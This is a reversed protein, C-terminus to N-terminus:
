EANREEGTVQIQFGTSKESEVQDDVEPAEEQQQETMYNHLEYLHREIYTDDGCEPESRPEPECMNTINLGLQFNKLMYLWHYEYWSPNQFQKLMDCYYITHTSKYSDEILPIQTSSCNDGTLYTDGSVGVIIQNDVRTVGGITKSYTLERTPVPVYDFTSVESCKDLCYELLTNTIKELDYEPMYNEDDVLCGEFVYCYEDKLIRRVTEKTIKTSCTANCGSIARAIAKEGPSVLKDEETGIFVRNNEDVMIIGSIEVDDDNFSINNFGNFNAMNYCAFEKWSDNDNFEPDIEFGQVFLMADYYAKLQTETVYQPLDCYRGETEYWKAPTTYFSAEQDSVYLSWHPLWYTEKEPVFSTIAKIYGIKEEFSFSTYNNPALYQGESNFSNVVFKAPKNDVIAIGYALNNEFTQENKLTTMIIDREEYYPHFVDSVDPIYYDYSTYCLPLQGQLYYTRLLDPNLTNVDITNNAYSNDSTVCCPYKLVYPYIDDTDNYNVSSEFKYWDTGNNTEIKYCDNPDYFGAMTEIVLYHETAPYHAYKFAYVPNYMFPFRGQPFYKAEQVKTLNNDDPLQSNDGERGQVDPSPHYIVWDEFPMYVDANIDASTYYSIINGGIYAEHLLEEEPTGNELTYRVRESTNSNFNFYVPLPALIGQEVPNGETRINKRYNYGEQRDEPLPYPDYPTLIKAYKFGAIQLFDFVLHNDYGYPLYPEPLKPYMLENMEELRQSMKRKAIWRMLFFDINEDLGDDIEKKTDTDEEGVKDGTNDAEEFLKNDMSLELDSLDYGACQMYIYKDLVSKWITALETFCYQVKPNLEEDYFVKDKHYQFERYEDTLMHKVMRDFIGEPWGNMLVGYFFEEFTDFDRNVRPIKSYGIACDTLYELAFEEFSPIDDLECMCLEPDEEKNQNPCLLQPIYSLSMTLRNCCPVDIIAAYVVDTNNPLTRDPKGTHAIVINYQDKSLLYYDWDSLEGEEPPVTSFLYDNQTISGSNIKQVFVNVAENFDEMSAFMTEFAVLRSVIPQLLDKSKFAEEGSPRIGELRKEIIYTGMPLGHISNSYTFVGNDGITTGGFDYSDGTEIHTAKILLQFKCTAQLENCLSNCHLSIKDSDISYSVALTNVLKPLFIRKTSVFGTETKINGGGETKNLLISTPQNDIDELMTELPEIDLLCSAITNGNTSQYMVSAVNNPDVTITKFVKGEKPAHEGFLLDLEYQTALAYFYRSTRGSGDEQNGIMHTKGVGSQEKVRGTPDNYFITRTFPFGEADPISIDSNHESYYSFGETSQNVQEPTQSNNDFHRTHYEEDDTTKMFSEKFSGDFTKGVPIPMTVIVPRGSYDLITQSILTTDKNSSFYSQSQRVNLLEDAFIISEKYKNDESFVRSYIWNIDENPDQFYFFPLSIDLVELTNKEDVVSWDGFNRIDTVGGEYFNSIPRVRCVYFGSGESISLEIFTDPSYTIVTLAKSWDYEINNIESESSEEYGNFLRLLQFEYSSIYPISQNAQWYFRKKISEPIDTIESISFIPYISPHIAYQVSLNYSLTIVDSALLSSINFISVSEIDVYNRNVYDSLDYLINAERTNQNFLLTVPEPSLSIVNGSKTTISIEYTVGHEDQTISNQLAISLLLKANYFAYEQNVESNQPPSLLIEIQEISNQLDVSEHLTYEALKQSFGFVSLLCFINTFLIVKTTFRKMSNKKYNM